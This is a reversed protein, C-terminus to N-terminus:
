CIGFLPTTRRKDPPGRDGTLVEEGTISYRGMNRARLGSATVLRSL